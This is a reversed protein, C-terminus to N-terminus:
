QLPSRRKLRGDGGEDTLLPTARGILASAPLPGFYRGDLSDGVQGNMLFLEGDAVVRCGSWVPLDRGRRDRELATGIGIGDITIEGGLRCARQGPLAAVRKILPVGKALYGRESLFRALPAPADVVVLDGIALHEAPAIGYLGVPASASANWVLKLPPPVVAAVAIGITACSTALLYGFSTV